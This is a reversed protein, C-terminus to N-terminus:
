EIQDALRQETIEFLGIKRWVKILQKRYGRKKLNSQQFCTIVIETFRIRNNASNNEAEWRKQRM